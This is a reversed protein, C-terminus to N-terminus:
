AKSKIKSKIKSKALIILLQVNTLSPDHLLTLYRYGLRGLYAPGYSPPYPNVFTICPVAGEGPGCSAHTVLTVCKRTIGGKVSSKESPSTAKGASLM